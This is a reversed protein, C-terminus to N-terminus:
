SRLITQDLGNWFFLLRDVSGDASFASTQPPPSAVM